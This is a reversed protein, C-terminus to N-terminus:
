EEEALPVFLFFRYQMFGYPEEVTGEVALSRGHFGRLDGFLETLSVPPAPALHVQALKTCLRRHQEPSLGV